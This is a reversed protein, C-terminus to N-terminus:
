GLITLETVLDDNDIHLHKVIEVGIHAAVTQTFISAQPSLGSLRKDGPLSSVFGVVCGGEANPTVTISVRADSGAFTTHALLTEYFLLRFADGPASATRGGGHVRVAIELSGRHQRRLDDIAKDLEGCLDCTQQEKDDIRLVLALQRALLHTQCATRRVDQEAESGEGVAETREAQPLLSARELLEASTSELRDAMQNLVTRDETEGAARPEFTIVSLDLGRSDLNDMRLNYRPLLPSIHYRLQDMGIGVLMREPRSMLRGATRNVALLRGTSRNIVITARSRSLHKRLPAIDGAIKEYADRCTNVLRVFHCDESFAGLRHELGFFGLVIKNDEDPNVTASFIRYHQGSEVMAEPRYRHSFIAAGAQTATTEIEEFPFLELGEPHIYTRERVLFTLCDEPALGDLFVKEKDTIWGSLFMRTLLVKMVRSAENEDFGFPEPAPDFRPRREVRLAEAHFQKTLM